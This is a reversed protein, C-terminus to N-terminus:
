PFTAHKLFYAQVATDLASLQAKAADVKAKDEKPQEATTLGCLAAALVISFISQMVQSRLKTAKSKWDVREVSAAVAGGVEAFSGGAGFRRGCAAGGGAGAGRGPRRRRGRHVGVPEHRGLLLGAVARRCGALCGGVRGGATVALAPQRRRRVAPV